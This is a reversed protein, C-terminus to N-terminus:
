SSHTCEAPKYLEGSVPVLKRRDEKGKNQASEGYCIRIEGRVAQNEVKKKYLRCSKQQKECKCSISKRQVIRLM